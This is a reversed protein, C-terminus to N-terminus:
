LMCETTKMINMTTCGDGYDLEGWFSGRYRHITVEWKGRELGQCAQEKQGEKDAQESEEMTICGGFCKHHAKKKKLSLLINEKM